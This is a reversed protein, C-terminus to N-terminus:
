LSTRVQTNKSHRNSDHAEVGETQKRLGHHTGNQDQLTVVPTGPSNRNDKQGTAIGGLLLPLGCCVVAAGIALAVAIVEM